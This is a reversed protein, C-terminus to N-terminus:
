GVAIEMTHGRLVKALDDGLRVVVVPVGGRQLRLLLGAAAPDAAGSSTTFTGPDVYVLSAPHRGVTRQLIREVLQGSLAATVITLELARSAPGTEDALLAAVPSHGTPEVAALLELAQKWDGDASHVPQYERNASNIILAARRGRTAQARLLSGAASVQVEFTSNPARGVVTSAEADLLVAAEDRPSDELEKVMLQGRRATSPWHVRRLSEGQEYDRVSHLEFGSQRRLMLRRGDSLQRGTESFLEDLEVLRPYVLISERRSLPTSVRDLGFPDELVLESYELRYRGRPVTRLVYGGRLAGEKRELETEHVHLREFQERVAASKASLFGDTRLEINVTLDEGALHEKGSLKRRVETPSKQIRVWITAGVVVLLLGIAVPYLPVTGFAWAVVYIGAGLLLVLRGRDTLM